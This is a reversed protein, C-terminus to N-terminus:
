YLFTIKSQIEKMDESMKVQYLKGNYILFSAKSSIKKSWLHKGTELDVAFIQKGKFNSTSAFLIHYQISEINFFKPLHFKLTRGSLDYIQKTSDTSIIVRNKSLFISPNQQFSDACFFTTTSTAFDLCKVKFSKIDINEIETYLLFNENYAYKFTLFFLPNDPPTNELFKETKTNYIRQKNILLFDSKLVKIRNIHFDLNLDKEKILRVFDYCHIKGKYRASEDTEGPFQNNEGLYLFGKDYAFCDIHVNGIDLSAVSKTAANFTKLFTGDRYIVLNEYTFLFSESKGEYYFQNNEDFILFKGNKQNCVLHNNDLSLFNDNNIVCYHYSFSKKLENIKVESQLIKNDWSSSLNKLSAPISDFNNNLILQSHPFPQIAATAGGTYIKFIFLASELSRFYVHGKQGYLETSSNIVLPKSLKFILNTSNKLPTKKELLAERNPKEINKLTTVYHTVTDRLRRCTKKLKTLESYDCIKYIIETPLQDIYNM